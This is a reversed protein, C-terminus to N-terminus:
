YDLKTEKKQYLLRLILYAVGVNIMIDSINFVPFWRFDLFDTVYSYSVRDIVNGISGGFIFALSIQLLLDEQSAKIHYYLVVLLIIIGTSSLFWIQGPFLGFAAGPNRVLTLHFIEPIIPISQSPTM